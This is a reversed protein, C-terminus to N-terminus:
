RHMLLNGLQQLLYAQKIIQSHALLLLTQTHSSAFIEIQNFTRAIVHGSDGKARYRKERNGNISTYKPLNTKLKNLKDTQQKNDKMMVNRLYDEMSIPITTMRQQTRTVICRTKTMTIKYCTRKQDSGHGIVTGLMWPGEDECQEAVTSGTPLLLTNIDTYTENKQSPSGTTWAVHNRENKNFM